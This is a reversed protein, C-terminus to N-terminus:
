PADSVSIIFYRVPSAGFADKQVEFKVSGAQSPTQREVVDWEAVPLDLSSSTRLEYQNGAEGQVSFAWRNDREQLQVDIPPHTVLITKTAVGAALSDDVVLAIVYSGMGEFRVSAEKRSTRSFVASGPGSVKKWTYSLEGGNGGSATGNLSLWEGSAVNSGATYTVVPAAHNQREAHLALVEADSLRRSFFSFEDIRGEWSKQEATQRSRGLIFAEVDQIPNNLVGNELAVGQGVRTGYVAGQDEVGDIYLRPRQGQAWTLVLHQWQNAVQTNPSSELYLQHNAAGEGITVVTQIVNPPQGEGRIQDTFWGQADYRLTIGPNPPVNHTWNEVPRSSYIGGDTGTQDPHVWVSITFANLPALSVPSLIAQHSIQNSFSLAHDDGAGTVGQGGGTWPAGTTGSRGNGSIDSVNTGQGGNLPWHVYRNGPPDGSGVLLHTDMLESQGGSQATARLIYTGPTDVKAATGYANLDSFTVMGDGSVRSWTLDPTGGMFSRDRAGVELWHAPDTTLSFAAGSKPWVRWIKLMPETLRTKADTILREAYEAGSSDISGGSTFTKQDWQDWTAAPVQGDLGAYQLANLAFLFTYAHTATNAENVLLTYATAPDGCVALAQAAMSRVGSYSDTSALSSLAQRVLADDAGTRFLGYAGWFRMAPHDHSLLALYAPVSTADGHSAATAANLLDAFLTPNAVGYEYLTPHTMGAGVLEPYLPEPILGLDRTEVMWADLEAALADRIQEFAPDNVLNEVQWPDEQTDFLQVVPKPRFFQSQTENCQGTEYADRWAGWNAQVTYGYSAELGRPRHPMFNRIYYYRGDTVARSFDYREAQRDRYFHVFDPESEKASGLFVRGQMLVPIPIDAISLATKPLDVFTVKEDFTTGPLSPRLHLFTDPIKVILPVQTGVNYIYRKSRSLQGGHDSFFFIITDEAVGEDELEQLLDGVQEDMRTILDHLRAWDQRIAPVDPHYPPLEIASPDIRPQPPIQGSSVYSNIRDPDLQSEHTTFINFVAFFPQGPARNKWHANNGSKNWLSGDDNFDSNYDKKNNNTTYYGANRFLKAYAPIMSPMVPDSRMNHTGLTTSHMGTLLASRAPACVPTPAYAKTFRYGETALQDLNPTQAQPYGYSGLYPSIDECTVWLINPRTEAKLSHCTALHLFLSIVLPRVFSM